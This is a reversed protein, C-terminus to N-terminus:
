IYTHHMHIHPTHICSHTHKHTSTTHPTFAQMQTHPHTYMGLGKHSHTHSCALMCTLTSPMDTYSCTHGHRHLFPTYISCTHSHISLSHHMSIHTNSDKHVLTNTLTHTHLPHLHLWVPQVLSSPLCSCPDRRNCAAKFSSQESPTAHSQLM